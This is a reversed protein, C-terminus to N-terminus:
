SKMKNILEVCAGHSFDEAENVVAWKGGDLEAVVIQSDGTYGGMRNKANVEVCALKDNDSFTVEGFRASEPDVM